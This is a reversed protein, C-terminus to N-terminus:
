RHLSKIKVLNNEGIWIQDGVGIRNQGGIQALWAGQLRFEPLILLWTLYHGKYIAIHFDRKYLTMTIVRLWSKGRIPRKVPRSQLFQSDRRV